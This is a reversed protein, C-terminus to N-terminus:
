AHACEPGRMLSKWRSPSFGHAIVCLLLPKDFCLRPACGPFFPPRVQALPLPPRDPFVVAVVAVGPIVEGMILRPRASVAPALVAQTADAIVVLQQAKRQRQPVPAIRNQFLAGEAQGVAFAVMALVHLFVVEVEVRSGRVRVHLIQVLVGLSGVRVGIKDLGIAGTAPILGFVFQQVRANEVVLPIEVNEHFVGLRGGVVHQHLDAYEIAARM